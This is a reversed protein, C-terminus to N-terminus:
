KYELNDAHLIDRGYLVYSISQILNILTFAVFLYMRLINIDKKRQKTTIRSCFQNSIYIKCDGPINRTPAHM